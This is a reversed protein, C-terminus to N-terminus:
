SNTRMLLLHRCQGRSCVLDLVHTLAMNPGPEDYDPLHLYLAPCRDLLDQSVTLLRVSAVNSSQVYLLGICFVLYLLNKQRKPIELSRIM